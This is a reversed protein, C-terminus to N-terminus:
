FLVAQWPPQEIVELNSIRFNKGVFAILSSFDAVNESIPEAIPLNAVKLRHEDPLWNLGFKHYHSGRQTAFRLAQPGCGKNDHTHMPLWDIREIAKDRRSKDHEFELQFLMDEDPRDKPARARLILGEVTVGGIELPATLWLKKDADEVWQSPGSLRKDSNIVAHVDLM